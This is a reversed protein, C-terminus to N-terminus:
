EFWGAYLALLVFALIARVAWGSWRWSRESPPEYIAPSTDLFPFRNM